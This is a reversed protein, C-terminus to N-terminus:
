KLIENLFMLTHKWARAAMVPNYDPSEPNTFTHKSNAYTIIQWDGKGEKLENVLQNYIEETVGADDAPNLVLVKTRIPDNPREQAKKLGGHISVVGRVNMGARAVELTGTGGFCYGIVAVKEKDIGQEMLEQLALAIRHQYAKYDSLYKSTMKGASANDAPTNEVGYIDAIFAVYGEKQLNVAAQRAENDVGKWAPLILVGPLNMGANPTIWGKLEQNGDHYTVPKLDQALINESMFFIVSLIFVYKM